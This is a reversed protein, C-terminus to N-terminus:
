ATEKVGMMCRLIAEKDFHDREFAGAYEGEHLVVIRDSIGIVEDIESSVMIIAGGARVFQGMIKHIETKSAVDVGRTPEDLLLIKPDSGLLRALIAKQQNGGSLQSILQVDPNFTVVNLKEVLRGAKTSIRKKSLFKRVLIDKMKLVIINKSVSMEPFIGEDSRSESLFALQNAIAQSPSRNDLEEGQYYVAGGTKPNAGFITRILESRGAGVLGAVSVIEGWRVDFSLNEYGPASLHEVRLAVDGIRTEVKPYLDDLEKCAILKCIQSPNLNDTSTTTVMEGDRLITIRDALEIMENLRHSIFIVIYGKEKIEGILKFLRTIEKDTLSSTPEDLIIIRGDTSLERAIEVMQRVGMSVEAVKASPEVEIGWELLLKKANRELKKRDVFSLGGNRFNHIYINEAISLSRVLSLEQHVIRIGHNYADLPSSIDVPVGDIEIVGEDQPYVGSVIKMLTSKGAGNEGALGHIEGDYFKTSVNTLAHVGRFSKSVNKIELMEEGKWCLKHLM